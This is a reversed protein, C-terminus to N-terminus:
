FYYRYLFISILKVMLMVVMVFAMRVFSMRGCYCAFAFPYITYPRLNWCNGCYKYHKAYTFRRAFYREISVLVIGGYYGGSSCKYRRVVQKIDAREKQNFIM